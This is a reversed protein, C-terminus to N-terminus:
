EGGTYDFKDIRRMWSALFDLGKINRSYKKAFVAYYFRARIGNYMLVTAHQPWPSLWSLATETKPGFKGDVVLRDQAGCFANLTRQLLKVGSSLGANVCHDFYTEGLAIPLMGVKTKEYLVSYFEMVDYDSLFQIDSPKHLGRDRCWQENKEFVIGRYTHFGDETYYGGELELTKRISAM